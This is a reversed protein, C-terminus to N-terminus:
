NFFTNEFLDFWDRFRTRMSLPFLDVTILCNSSLQINREAFISGMLTSAVQFAGYLLWRRPTMLLHVFSHTLTGYCSVVINNVVLTGELTLPAYADPLEVMKIGIVRVSSASFYGNNKLYIYDGVQVQSAFLYKGQYNDKKRVFLSHRPTIHLPEASGNPEVHIELFNVPSGNNYKQFIDMALVPSSRLQITNNVVGAAVLIQDGTKLDRMKLQSGDAKTLYADGGFCVLFFLVIDIRLINRMLTWCLLGRSKGM